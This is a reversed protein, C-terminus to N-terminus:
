NFYDRYDSEDFDDHEEYYYYTPTTTPISTIPTTEEELLDSCSPLDAPINYSIQTRM